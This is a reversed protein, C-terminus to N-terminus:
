KLFSIFRFRENQYIGKSNFVAADSTRFIFVYLSDLSNERDFTNLSGRIMIETNGFEFNEDDFLVDYNGSTFTKNYDDVISAIEGTKTDFRAKVYPECINSGQYVDFWLIEYSSHNNEDNSAYWYKNTDLFPEYSKLSKSLINRIYIGNIKFPLKKM